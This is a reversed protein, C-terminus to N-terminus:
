SWGCRRASVTQPRHHGRERRPRRVPPDRRRHVQRGAALVRYEEGTYNRGFTEVVVMSLSMLTADLPGDKADAVLLESILLQGGPALAGYCSRLISRCQDVDWDHLIMSLLIVGQGTPFPDAFFGRPTFSIRDALGAAAPVASCARGRPCRWRVPLM